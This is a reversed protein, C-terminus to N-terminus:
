LSNLKAVLKNVDEIEMNMDVHAKTVKQMLSDIEASLKKYAAETADLADNESNFSEIKKNLNDQAAKLEDSMKGIRANEASHEEKSLKFADNNAKFKSMEENYRNQQNKVAEDEKIMLERKSKMDSVKKNRLNTENEYANNKLDLETKLKDYEESFIEINKNKTEIQQKLQDYSSVDDESINKFGAPRAQQVYKATYDVAETAVPTLGTDIHNSDVGSETSIAM